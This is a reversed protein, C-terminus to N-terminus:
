PLPTLQDISYACASYRPDTGDLSVRHSSETTNSTGLYIGEGDPTNVRCGRVLKKLKEDREAEAIEEPTPTKWPEPLHNKSPCEAWERVSLWYDTGQSSRAWFCMKTIAASLAGCELGAKRQEMAELAQTRYPEPLTELWGKVTTPKPAEKPALGLKKATVRARSLFDPRHTHKNRLWFSNSLRNDIRYGIRHYSTRTGDHWPLGLRELEDVVDQTAEIWDGYKLGQEEPKSKHQEVDQSLSNGSKLLDLDRQIQDLKKGQALIAFTHESISRFYDTLLSERRQLEQQAKTPKKVAKKRAFQGKKNRTTTM